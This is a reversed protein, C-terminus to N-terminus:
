QGGVGTVARLLWSDVKQRWFKKTSMESIILPKPTHSKQSPTIIEVNMWTMAHIPVEGRQITFLKENYLYVIDQKDM